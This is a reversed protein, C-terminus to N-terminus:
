VGRARGILAECGCDDRRDLGALERAAYPQGGFPHEGFAEFQRPAGDYGGVVQAAVDTRDLPPAPAARPDAVGFWGGARDDFELCTEPGPTERVAEEVGVAVQDIEGERHDHRGVSEGAVGESGVQGSEDGQGPAVAVVWEAQRRQAAAEGLEVGGGSERGDGLLDRDGESSM